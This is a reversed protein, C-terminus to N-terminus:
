VNVVYRYIAQRLLTGSYLLPYSDIKKLFSVERMVADYLDVGMKLTQPSVVSM